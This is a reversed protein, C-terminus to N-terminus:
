KHRILVMWDSRSNVRTTTTLVFKKFVPMELKNGEKKWGDRGGESGWMEM